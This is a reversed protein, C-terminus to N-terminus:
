ILSLPCTIHMDGTKGKIDVFKLIFVLADNGINLPEKAVWM